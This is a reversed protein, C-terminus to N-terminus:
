RRPHWGIHGGASELLSPLRGAGVLEGATGDAAETNREDAVAAFSASGSSDDFPAGILGSPCSVV